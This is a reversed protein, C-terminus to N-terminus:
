WMLGATAVLLLCFLLRLQKEPLRHALSVGWSISILGGAALPLGLSWDVKDVSAYTLLAILASPAVLALSLGQATTQRRIGFLGTLVPAAVLGGGVTFLGSFVGGTLGLLGLFPKPLVRGPQPSPTSSAPRLGWLLIAALAVLFLAFALRLSQAEIRTAYRATVCASATATLGLLAASGLDIPNRQRYRVFGLLVNPAIMVLATGQAMQQDLGFLWILTPIAILGGGIGFIGGVWGLLLGLGFDAGASWWMGSM